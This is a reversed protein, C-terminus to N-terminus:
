WANGLEAFNETCRQSNSMPQSYMRTSGPAAAERLHNADRRRRRLDLRAHVDIQFGHAGHDDIAHVHQAVVRAVDRQRHEAVLQADGAALQAAAHLLQQHALRHQEVLVACDRSFSTSALLWASCVTCSNRSRRRTIHLPAFM